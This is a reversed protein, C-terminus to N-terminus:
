YFNLKGKEELQWSESSVQSVKAPQVLEFNSYNSTFNICSFLSELTKINYEDIKIKAHPILYYYNDEEIIWYKKQTTNELAVTDSNGSRRQNLSEQTEAVTAVVQNSLSNKDLNYTEVFKPIKDVVAIPNLSYKDPQQSFQQYSDNNSYLGANSHHNITHNVQQKNFSERLRIESDTIKQNNEQVQKIIERQIRDLNSLKNDFENLQNLKVLIKNQNKILDNLQKQQQNKNIYWSILLILSTTFIPLDLGPIISENM